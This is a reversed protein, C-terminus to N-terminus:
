IQVAASWLTARPSGGGWLRSAYRRDGTLMGETVEARTVAIGARLRSGGGQRRSLNRPSNCERCIPAIVAGFGRAHVHGGVVADRECREYSCRGRRRGTAREADRIFSQMRPVADASGDINWAHVARELRVVDDTMSVCARSHHQELSASKAFSDSSFSSARAFSHSAIRHMRPVWGDTEVVRPTSRSRADRSREDTFSESSFWGELAGRPGRRTTRLRADRTKEDDESVTSPPIEPNRNSGRMVSASVESAHARTASSRRTFDRTARTESDVARRACSLVTVGRNTAARASSANRNVSVHALSTRAYALCSPFRSTTVSLSTSSRARRAGLRRARPPSSPSPSSDHGLLTPSESSSEIRNM